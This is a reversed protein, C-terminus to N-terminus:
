LQTDSTYHFRWVRVAERSAHEQKKKKKEKKKEEEQLRYRKSVRGLDEERQDRRRKDEVSRVRQQTVEELLAIKM